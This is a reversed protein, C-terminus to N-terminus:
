SNVRTAQYKPQGTPMVSSNWWIIASVGPM